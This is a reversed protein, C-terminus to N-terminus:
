EPISFSAHFLTKLYTDTQCFWKQELGFLCSPIDTLSNKVGATHIPTLPSTHLLQLKLALMHVLQMAVVSHKAAPQQVRHVTQSNNSFLAVHADKLPQYVDEMVLWLMLLGAMELNFYTITGNPNDASV